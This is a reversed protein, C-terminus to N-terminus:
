ETKHTHTCWSVEKESVWGLPGIVGCFVWLSFVLVLFYGGM